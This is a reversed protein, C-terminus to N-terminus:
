SAPCRFSKATARASSRRTGARSARTRTQQEVAAAADRPAKGLQRDLPLRDRVHRERMKVDIMVGVQRREDERPLVPEQWRPARREFDDSRNSRQRQDSPERGRVSLPDGRGPKRHRNTLDRRAVRDVQGPTDTQRQWGTGWEGSLTAYEM